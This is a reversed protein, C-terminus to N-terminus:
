AVEKTQEPLTLAVGMRFAPHLGKAIVISRLLDRMLDDSKPKPAEVPAMQTAGCKLCRYGEDFFSEGHPERSEVAYYRLQDSGCMECVEM